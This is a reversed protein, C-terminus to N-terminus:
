YLCAGIAFASTILFCSRKEIYIHAGFVLAEVAYLFFCGSTCVFLAFFNVDSIYIVSSAVTQVKVHVSNPFM